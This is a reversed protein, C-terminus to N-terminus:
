DCYNVERPDKGKTWDKRLKKPKTKIQNIEKRLLKNLQATTFKSM